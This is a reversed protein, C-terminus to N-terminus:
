LAYKRSLLNPPSPLNDIAYERLAATAATRNCADHTEGFGQYVSNMRALRALNRDELASSDIKPSILVDESYAFILKVIGQLREAESLANLQKEFVRYRKAAESRFMLVVTNGKTPLVCIHLPEIRYNPSQNLTHNIAGGKFDAIPNIMQQFAFPVTYPLVMHLVLHFANSSRPTRGVRLATKLAKEDEAVDASRVDALSNFEPLTAEGLAGKLGIEMKAKSIDRLLNKAAIQGMAQSGPPDLLVGPTEYLKFYESDCKGCVRRFTVAKGIGVENDIINGGMIAASTLLKGEFAIEKLCYRPITHSICLKPAERGCIPCREPKANKEAKQFLPSITKRHSALEETPINITPFDQRFAIAAEHKVVHM